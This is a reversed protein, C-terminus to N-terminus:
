KYDDPLDNLLLLTDHPCLRAFEKKAHDLTPAYIINTFNQATLGNTLSTKNHEGVIVVYDASCCLEGLKFNIEQECKGGEIIGPTVIMTRCNTGLKIQNLVWIAESASALSCNYSDDLINLRGQILELRHPVFRLNEIAKVIESTRVGLKYALAAALTINTINHKGLLRTSVKFEDDGIHLTFHTKFDKIEIDSSYIETPQEISIGVKKGIKQQYMKNTHTNDLNFVALDSRLFDPLEKKTKYINEISKFTQLHQPAVCTVIGYDAGFLKCLKKIDGKRRAGYELLVYEHLGTLSENIFKATGLPTNYSKPSKIVTFSDKMMEYLINKVSTKGNSGTIAIVKTKNLSLKEQARKIFIHNRIRDYLNIFAAIIPVIFVILNIFIAGFFFPTFLALIILSIVYLRKVKGTYKLPTKHSSILRLNFIPNLMLVFLSLIITLIYSKFFLLLLAILNITIYIWNKKLIFALYRSASYDKLQFAHLYKQFILGNLLLSFLNILIIM